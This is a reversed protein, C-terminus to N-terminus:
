IPWLNTEAYVGAFSPSHMIQIIRQVFQSADYRICMRWGYAFKRFYGCKKKSLVENLHLHTKSKNKLM